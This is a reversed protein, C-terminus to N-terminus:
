KKGGEVPESVLTVADGYGAALTARLSRGGSNAPAWVVGDPLDAVEAVFSVKGSATSLAVNGGPKAGAAELTAANARVVAPRSTRKYEDQGDQGLGDDILLRWTDLLVEDKEITSPKANVEPAAVRPGDWAGLDMMDSRAQDVTRFRLPAGLEEAIGALVRLDTLSNPETLVADFSRIRGEWNVFFGPKEVVPAVPLVVDAVATVASERVELSVIFGAADLAARARTPDPL